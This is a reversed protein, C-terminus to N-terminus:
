KWPFCPLPSVTEQAPGHNAARISDAVAELESRTRSMLHVEAGAAGFHCAIGAGIGRGAGTVIASRGELIGTM